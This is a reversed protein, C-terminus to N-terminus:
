GATATVAGGGRPGNVSRLVIWVPYDTLTLTISTAGAITAVEAPVARDALPDRVSVNRPDFRLEPFTLRYRGADPVDDFLNRTQIYAGLALTDDDVQFPLLCFVDRYTLPRPRLRSPDWPRGEEGAPVQTVMAAGQTDFIVKDQGSLQWVRPRLRFLREQPVAVAGEFVRALRQVPLLSQLYSLDGTEIFRREWGTKWDGPNRLSGDCVFSMGKNLFFPYLRLWYKGVYHEPRERARTAFPEPLNVENLFVGEETM